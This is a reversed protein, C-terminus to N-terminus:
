NWRENREPEVVGEVLPAWTAEGATVGPLPHIYHHHEIVKPATVEAGLQHVVPPRVIGQWPSAGPHRASHVVWAAVAAALLVLVVAAAILAKILEVAVAAVAGGGGALLVAGIILLVPASGGTTEGTGQFRFRTM